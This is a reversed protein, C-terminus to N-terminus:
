GAARLAWRCDGSIQLTHEGETRVGGLVSGETDERRLSVVATAGQRVELGFAAGPRCRYDASIRWWPGDSAFGLVRPGSGSAALVNEGPRGEVVARSPDPPATSSVGPLPQLGLSSSPAAASSGSSTSPLRSPSAISTAGSAAPAAGSQSATTRGIAFGAVLLLAGVVVVSAARSAPTRM